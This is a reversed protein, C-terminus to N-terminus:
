ETDEMECLMQRWNVAVFHDLTSYASAIAYHIEWKDHYRDISGLYLLFISKQQFFRSPLPKTDFIDNQRMLYLLYSGYCHGAVHSYQLLFDGHSWNALNHNSRDNNKSILNPILFKLKQRLRLSSYIFDSVYLIM